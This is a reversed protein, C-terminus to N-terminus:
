IQQEMFVLEAWWLSSPNFHEVKSCSSPSLSDFNNMVNLSLLALSLTPLFPTFCTRVSIYLWKMGLPCSRIVPWDMNWKSSKQTGSAPVFHQFWCCCRRILWPFIKACREPSCSFDGKFMKANAELTETGCKVM